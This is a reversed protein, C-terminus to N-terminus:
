TSSFLLGACRAAISINGLRDARAPRPGSRTMLPPRAAGLRRGSQGEFSVCISGRGQAAQDLPQDQLEGPVPIYGRLRAQNCQLREDLVLSPSGSRNASPGHAGYICSASQVQMAAGGVRHARALLVGLPCRLETRYGSRLSRNSPLLRDYVVSIGGAGAFQRAIVSAILFM